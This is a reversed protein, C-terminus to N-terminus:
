DGLTGVLEITKDVIAKPTHAIMQAVEAVQEGSMVQLDLGGKKAEEQFEKDKVTDQFAKRLAALRDAPVGPTTMIPRGLEANSNYFTLIAHQEDTKAFSHISPANVGALPQREMNFLVNVKKEALWGPRSSEIGAWTQCIGDVEHREMALFVATGGNYGEIMKFKMGLLKELLVPTTSIATGAGAGGVTLETTLLDAGTKVKADAMSVCVRYTSEPSGVWNFDATKFKIAQNGLLEQTPMNRSVMALVTGDRPAVNYLYNTAVIHGGGPMNKPVITPNGPIFRPLHRAFLRAWQDYGGGSSTGIVIEMSKGRYFDAVADAATAPTVFGAVALAGFGALAVFSTRM